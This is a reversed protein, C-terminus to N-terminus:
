SQRPRCSASERWQLRCLRVAYGREPDDIRSLYEDGREDVVIEPAIVPLHCVFHPSAETAAGHGFDLPDDSAFVYTGHRPGHTRFLYYRGDREVAAPSEPQFRRRDATNDEVIRWDSWRILDESTRGYIAARSRDNDHHGAYYIHWQNGFRAVCQDRVAGPGMFVRSRGSPGRYREWSVGDGSVMLCTQKEGLDYSKTPRGESDVGSDYGGYFMYHRGEHRVVFPSQLFEHGHWDVISEGASRDARILRGTRRWNPRTLEDSEWNVLLRGVPSRRVCAWLQWVGNAARYICHDCPENRRALPTAAFDDALVPLEPLDPPTAITWWEGVPVPQLLGEGATSHRAHVIREETVVGLSVALTEARGSYM